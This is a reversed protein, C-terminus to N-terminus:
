DKENDDDHEIQDPKKNEDSAEPETKHTVKPNKKKLTTPKQKPVILSSDELAKIYIDQQPFPISIGAEELADYISMAVQSKVTVDIDFPVWFRIKFDLSSDGFGEFTAWPAPSELVNIHDGAAKALIKLVEHPNSGYAVSVPIERRKKRDSLTWNTVDNSILNGNPIIVESGDYTRINSSRVGISTVTGMLQDVEIVDGVQFPREFALVLGAIFNFVINQLGFGIGVGLAGAILGFKSLDIGAAALVFYIGFAVIVYRTIMSIAGPVGRPFQIRPFLEKEYFVNVMRVIVVTIIIVLIVGLISGLSITSTGVVWSSDMLRGLWTWVWDSLGLNNIVSKVWLVILLIYILKMIKNVLSGNKQKIINSQQLFKTEFAVSIIGDLSIAILIYIISSFIANNVTSVMLIALNVFGFTNGVLAVGLLLYFLGSFFYLIGNIKFRLVPLLSKIAQIIYVLVIGTYLLHFYLFIRALLWTRIFFVSVEKFVLLVFLLVILKRLKRGFLKDLIVFGTILVVARLIDDVISPRIPYVWVSAILALFFATLIYHSIFYRTERAESKEEEDAKGKYHALLYLLIILIIFVIVHLVMNNSYDKKFAQLNKSSEQLYKQIQSKAISSNSISDHTEWIAPADKNFSSLSVSELDSKIEDVTIIFETVQNQNMYLQNQKNTLETDIVKIEKIISKIDNMIEPLADQEKAKSLTLDWQRLMLTIKQKQNELNLTRNNFKTRWGDLIKSTNKWKKKEDNLERISLTNKTAEIRKLEERMFRKGEKVLSDISKKDNYSDIAQQTAKLQNYVEETRQSIEVLPIPEVVITDNNIVVIKPTEEQTWATLWFLITTLVFLINKIRNM